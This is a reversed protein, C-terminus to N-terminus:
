RPAGARVAEAFVIEVLDAVTTFSRGVFMDDPLAIGCDDELQMLMGLFGLSNVSLLPGNLMEDDAVESLPASVRSEALAVRKVAENISARLRDDTSM